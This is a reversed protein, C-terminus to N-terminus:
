NLCPFWKLITLQEMMSQWTHGLENYLPRALDLGIYNNIHKDYNIQFFTLSEEATQERTRDGKRAGTM